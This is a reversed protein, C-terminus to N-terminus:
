HSSETEDNELAMTRTDAILQPGRAIGAWLRHLSAELTACAREAEEREKELVAVRAECETLAAQSTRLCELLWQANKEKRKNLALADLYFESKDALHKRKLDSLAAEHKRELQRRLRALEKDSSLGSNPPRRAPTETEMARAVPRHQSTTLEPSGQQPFPIAGNVPQYYPPPPDGENPSSHHAGM